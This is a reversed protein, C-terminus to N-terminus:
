PSRTWKNWRVARYLSTTSMEGQKARYYGELSRAIGAERSDDDASPQYLGMERTNAASIINDNGRMNWNDGDPSFCFDSPSTTLSVVNGGAARVLRGGWGTGHHNNSQTDGQNLQMQCHAHNRDFGGLVNNVVALNGKDWMKKLWVAEKSLGFEVTKNGYTSSLHFYDNDWRNAWANSDSASLDHADAKAKWFQYGYSNQDSSYAPPMLHRLDPAGELMVNVFTNRTLSMAANQALASSAIGPISGLGYM